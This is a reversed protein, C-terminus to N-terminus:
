LSKYITSVPETKNLCFFHLGPAGRELLDICQKTVIGLGRKYTEGPNDQLPEFIDSISPPITAGCLDCFQTMKKYDTIPLVGPIIRITVGEKRVREVFETYLNNDFFLQTIVFEAGADQKIKLYRSDLERTPTLIHGEPFGPVGVVFWDGYHQRILKVLEYGFRPENHMPKYNPEDRPPDGRMALINRIGARKLEDLAIRLDDYTHKVCTYHHIVPKGLRADLEKVIELTAKSTSGAAGYTVTFFDAGLDSLARAVEYLHARGEETKPPFFEFSYTKEKEKFIETVKKM